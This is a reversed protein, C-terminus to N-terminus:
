IAVIYSRILDSYYVEPLSYIDETSLQWKFSFSKM